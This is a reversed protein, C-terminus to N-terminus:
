SKGESKVCFYLAVLSNFGHTADRYQAKGDPSIILQHGWHDGDEATGFWFEVNLGTREFGANEREGHIEVHAGDATKHATFIVKRRDHKADYTNAYCTWTLAPESSFAQTSALMIFAALAATITKNAAM